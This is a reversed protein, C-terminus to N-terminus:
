YGGYSKLLELMKSMFVGHQTTRVAVNRGEILVAPAQVSQAYIPVSANPNLQYQSNQIEEGSQALAASVSGLIFATAIVVKAKTMM